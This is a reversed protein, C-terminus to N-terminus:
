VHIHTYTHTNTQPTYTNVQVHTHVHIHIYHTDQVHAETIYDPLDTKHPIRLYYKVSSFVRGLIKENNCPVKM